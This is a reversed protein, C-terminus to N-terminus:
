VTKISINVTLKRLKLIKLRFQYKYSYRPVIFILVEYKTESDTKIRM